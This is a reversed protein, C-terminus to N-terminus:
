FAFGLAGGGYPLSSVLEPSDSGDAFVVEVRSHAVIVGYGVFLRAFLGRSSGFEIGGEGNVWLASTQLTSSWFGAQRFV